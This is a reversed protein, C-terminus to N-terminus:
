NPSRVGGGCTRRRWGEDASGRVDELWWIGQAMPLLDARQGRGAPMGRRHARGPGCSKLKVCSELDDGRAQAEQWANTTREKIWVRMTSPGNLLLYSLVDVDGCEGASVDVRRCTSMEVHVIHRYISIGKLNDNMM